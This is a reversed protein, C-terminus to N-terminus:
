ALQQREEGHLGAGADVDDLVPLVGLALHGLIVWRHADRADRQPRADGDATVDVVGAHAVEHLDCM